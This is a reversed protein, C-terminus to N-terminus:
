TWDPDTSLGSCTTAPMPMMISATVISANDATLRIGCRVTINAGREAFAVGSCNRPRRGIAATSHTNPAAIVSSGSNARAECDSSAAGPM